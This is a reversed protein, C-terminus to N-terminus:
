KNVGQVDPNPAPTDAPPPLSAADARYSEALGDVPPRALAAAAVAAPDPETSGQLTALTVPAMAQMDNMDASGCAALAACLLSLSAINRFFLTMTPM